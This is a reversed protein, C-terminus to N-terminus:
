DLLAFPSVDVDGQAAEIDYTVLPTADSTLGYRQLFNAHVSRSNEVDALKANKHVFVAMISQPLNRVWAEADLIVENYGGAPSLIKQQEIM